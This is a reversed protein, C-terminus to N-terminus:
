RCPTTPTPCPWSRRGEIRSRVSAVDAQQPAITLPVQRNSEAAYAGQRLAALVATPDAALALGPLTMGGVLYSLCLLGSLARM